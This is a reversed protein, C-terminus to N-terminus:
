TDVLGIRQEIIALRGDLANLRAGHNKQGQVIETALQMLTGLSRSHSASEAELRGLREGQTKSDAELRDFRSTVDDFRLNMEERMERLLRLTQNEPEGAM